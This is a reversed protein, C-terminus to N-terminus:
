NPQNGPKGARAPVGIQIGHGVDLGVRGGGREHLLRRELGKHRRCFRRQDAQRAGLEGVSEAVDADCGRLALHAHLLEPVPEIEAAGFIKVLHGAHGLVRACFEGLV